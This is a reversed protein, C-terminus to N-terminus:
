VFVDILQEIVHLVIYGTDANLVDLRHCLVEILHEVVDVCSDVLVALLHLSESLSYLKTISSSRLFVCFLLLGYQGACKVAPLTQLLQIVVISRPTQLM